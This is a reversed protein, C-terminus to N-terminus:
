PSHPYHILVSTMIKFGEDGESMLTLIEMAMMRVERDDEQSGGRRAETGLCTEGFGRWLDGDGFPFGERRWKKKRWMEMNERM